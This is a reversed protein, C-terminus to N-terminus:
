LKPLPVAVVQDGALFAVTGRGGMVKESQLCLKPPIKGRPLGINSIHTYSGGKAKSKDWPPTIKLLFFIGGVLYTTSETKRTM